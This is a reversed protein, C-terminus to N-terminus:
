NYLEPNDRGYKRMIVGAVSNAENEIESGDEGQKATNNLKDDLFQKHHVLEHAISRAIDIFARGKGYVKVLKNPIYYATTTLDEREQVVTVEIDDEIGLHNKAFNIFDSYENDGKTTLGERLIKKINSKGM